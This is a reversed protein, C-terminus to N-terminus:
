EHQPFLFNPESMTNSLIQIQAKYQNKEYFSLFEKYYSKKKNNRALFYFDACRWISADM